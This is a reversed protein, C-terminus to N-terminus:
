KKDTAKQQRLARKIQKAAKDDGAKSCMKSLTAFSQYESYLGSKTPRELMKASWAKFSPMPAGQLLEDLQESGQMRKYLYSLSRSEIKCLLTALRVTEIRKRDKAQLMEAKAQLNVLSHKPITTTTEM